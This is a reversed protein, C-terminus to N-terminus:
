KVVVRADVIKAIRDNVMLPNIDLEEINKYKLPIKSAKVLISKLLKMNIPKEGRFGYLLKKLKLEDIMSQADNENIPCVRFSIDKVLEVLTGGFGFMIAHGFAIDKKIGIITERGKVFEQLLMGDLKLKKKRSLKMLEIYSNRLELYNGAIKIGGIDTKHVVQKSIIKLVVPFKMKRMRVVVDGSDKCLFSKALRLGSLFKEADKGLFVKM